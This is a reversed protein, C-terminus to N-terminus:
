GTAATDLSGEKAPVSEFEAIFRAGGTPIDEVWVKGGYQKVLDHVVSLGIGAGGTRSETGAKGRRFATWISERENPAVGPGQDDVWVQVREGDQRAGITVTQGRPGYKVANELFNLLIQRVAESDVNALSVNEAASSLM